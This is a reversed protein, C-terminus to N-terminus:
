AAGLKLRNSNEATKSFKFSCQSDKKDGNLHLISGKELDVREIMVNSFHRKILSSASKIQVTRNSFRLYQKTAIQIDNKLLALQMARSSIHPNEINAVPFLYEDRKNITTNQSKSDISNTSIQQNKVQVLQRVRMLQIRLDLILQIPINLNFKIDGNKRRVSIRNKKINIDSLKLNVVEKLKLKGAVALEAMLLSTGQLHNLVARCHLDGFRDSLGRRSKIQIYHFDDMKVQLFEGYLFKLAIEAKAQIAADYNHETALSSLFSEVDSHNLNIPHQENHFRIFRLIWNVRHSTDVETLQKQKAFAQISDILKRAQMEATNELILRNLSLMGNVEIPLLLHLKKLISTICSSNTCTAIISNTYTTITLNTNPQIFSHKQPTHYKEPIFSLLKDFISFNNCIKQALDGVYCTLLSKLM